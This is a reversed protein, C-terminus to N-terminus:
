DMRPNPVSLVRNLLAYVPLAIVGDYVATVITGGLFPTMPGHHAGLFLLLLQSLLTLSTACIVCLIANVEVELGNFCGLAFGAATRSAIYLTM